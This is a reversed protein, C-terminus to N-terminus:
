NFSLWTSHHKIAFACAVCCINDTLRATQELVDIGICLSHLAMTPLVRIYPGSPPYIHLTFIDIFLSCIM